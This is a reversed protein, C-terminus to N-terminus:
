IELKFTDGNFTKHPTPEFLYSTEKTPHSDMMGDNALLQVSDTSTTESPNTM